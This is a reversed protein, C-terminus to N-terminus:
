TGLGTVSWPPLPGSLSPPPWVKFQEDQPAWAIWSRARGLPVGM